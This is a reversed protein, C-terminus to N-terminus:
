RRSSISPKRDACRASSSGSRVCACATGSSIACPSRSGRGRHEAAPDGPPRCATAPAAARGRGRLHHDTRRERHLPDPLQAADDQGLRHRGLRARQLALPRHDRLITAGERTITGFRVLQDLTLKDKKFKRITLAPGDIALPPAIVNVRSGDPLRADCIPSSEDVRRGVQSVIRQCINMLQTNDRFRVSTQQVKGAVEIYTKDAGNVMIDAIDDRALLPELPGLGLVDNCIDELLDEQEAISMVINKLAIIDNVIDRIEERASEMDLRALQSLDITDILASFIEIKIDYFNESRKVTPSPPPPPGALRVTRAAADVEARATAIAAASPPSAEPPPASPAAPPAAPGNAVSPVASTHPAPSPAPGTGEIGGTGRKGFMPTGTLRKEQRSPAVPDAFHRWAEAEESRSSRHRDQSHPRLIRRDREQCRDRRDDPRQQRRHRLAPRRVSHHGSAHIDLAKAFDDMKIEPRKALGSKNIVLRPPSDNKRSQRLLDVLNKANRLNALDPEVTIVIEDAALLTRRMWGTWVHPLDLVVAPVGNQAIDIVQAFASEDFDYTRDLTAPAALLSLHDSCRALLRDLFTDDLRDPAHVAEAIGQTPDQNFDLGATGFALDLDAVVVDSELNRAIAWAVNHAVMSSGVGGKGGVFAISRGLPETSRDVYLEGVTRIFRMVDVPVVLYESVGRRILERYLEVDNVHGVVVM